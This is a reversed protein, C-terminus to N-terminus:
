LVGSFNFEAKATVKKSTDCIRKTTLNEHDHTFFHLPQFFNSSLNCIYSNVIRYVEDTFKASRRFDGSAQEIGGEM